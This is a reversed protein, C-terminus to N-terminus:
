KEEKPKDPKPGANKKAGLKEIMKKNFDRWVFWDETQEPM